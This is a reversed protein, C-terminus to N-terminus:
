GGLSVSEFVEYQAGSPRLRSIMVAADSPVVRGLDPVSPSLRPRERFRAVTVHPRWTRSEREYVGLRELGDWLRTALRGVRGEEDTLEIMGVSRTERYHSASLLPPAEGACAGRLADVVGDLRASDTSGLFALTVHLNGPPVVRLSGALPELEREQWGM